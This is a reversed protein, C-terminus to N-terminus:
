QMVLRPNIMAQNLSVGWHLHPGTARGTKGVTGIIQGTEVTQGEIVKIQNLHGYLTVIGQGHDILVTNGTFFYNGTNVVQGPSPALVPTGLPAAIDLGSHPKRPQGNFYRRSGFSSSLQGQIPQKLPLPFYTTARWPTALATAILKSEYQIRQLEEPNPNVFNRQNIKVYQVPYQKNYVTFAYNNHQSDVVHHVGPQVLLPIGVLAVWQQEDRLVLVPKQQYWIRPPTPSTIPLSIWAIGGPVAPMDRLSRLSPPLQANIVPSSRSLLPKSAPTPPALKHNYAITDLNYISPLQTATGPKIVPAPTSQPFHTPPLTCSICILESLGSIIFLKLGLQM